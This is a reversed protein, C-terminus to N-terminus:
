PNGISILRVLFPQGNVQVRLISPEQGAPVSILHVGAALSAAGQDRVRGDLSQTEWQIQSPSELRLTLRGNAWRAAKSQNRLGNESTNRFAIGVGGTLVRGSDIESSNSAADTLGARIRTGNPLSFKPVFALRVATGPSASWSGLPLLVTSDALKAYLHIRPTLTTVALDLDYTLIVSDGQATASKLLPHNLLDMPGTDADLVDNPTYGATGILDVPVAIAPLVNSDLLAATVLWSQTPHANAILAPSQGGFRNRAILGAKSGRLQVCAVSCSDFRNDILRLSDAGQFLVGGSDQGGVFRNSDIVMKYVATTFHIGWVTSPGFINGRVVQRGAGVVSRISSGGNPRLTGNTTIGFRNREIRNAQLFQSALVLGHHRNGAIVNNELLNGSVTNGLIIGTDNTPSSASAVAGINNARVINDLATGYGTGWAIRIGTVSGGITNSDITNAIAGGHILVGNHYIIAATVTQDPSGIRNRRVINGTTAPGQLVIGNPAVWIRNDQIYNGTISSGAESSALRIGSYAEDFSPNCGALVKSSDSASAGFSNESIVWGRTGGQGPSGGLWIGASKESCTAVRNRMVIGGVPAFSTDAGTYKYSGIDIASANFLVPQGSMTMGFHNDTILSSDGYVTIARTGSFADGFIGFRNQTIQTKVNEPGVLIGFRSYLGGTGTDGPTLNFLNKTIIDPGPGALGIASINSGTRTFSFGEVRVPSAKFQLGLGDIRYRVNGTAMFSSDLLVVPKTVDLSRQSWWPMKVTDGMRPMVITDIMGPATPPLQLAGILSCDQPVALLDCNEHLTTHTNVVLIRASSQSCLFVVFLLVLSSIRGM